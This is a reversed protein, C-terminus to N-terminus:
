KLGLWLKLSTNLKFMENPSLKGIKQTIKQSKISVIKDIMIQSISALGTLKDPVLVIRFLPSDILHSTIPCVVVSAHSPNFLDSQIVVAPRPKGYDGNLACIVIDGRKM